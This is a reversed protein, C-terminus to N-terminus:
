QWQELRPQNKVLSESYEIVASALHRIGVCDADPEHANGTNTKDGCEGKFCADIIRM